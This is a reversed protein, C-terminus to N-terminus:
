QLKEFFLKCPEMYLTDRDTFLLRDGIHISIDCKLWGKADRAFSTHKASSSVSANSRGGNFRSQVGDPMQTETAMILRVGLRGTTRLGYRMNAPPEISPIYELIMYAIGIIGVISGVV